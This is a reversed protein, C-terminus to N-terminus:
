WSLHYNWSLKIDIHKKVPPRPRHIEEVRCFFVLSFRLWAGRGLVSAASDDFWPKMLKIWRIWKNLYKNNEVRSPSSSSGIQSIKKHINKESPYTWGGGLQPERKSQCNDIMRYVWFSVSIWPVESENSTGVLRLVHNVAKPGTRTEPVLGTFCKKLRIPLFQFHWIQLGWELLCWCFCMSVLQWRDLNRVNGYTQAHKPM